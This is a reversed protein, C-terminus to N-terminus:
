PTVMRTASTKKVCSHGAESVPMERLPVQLLFRSAWGFRSHSDHM